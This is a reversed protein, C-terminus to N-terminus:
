ACITRLAGTITAPDGEMRAREGGRAAPTVIVRVGSAVLYRRRAAPDLTLWVDGVTQGTHREEVTTAESPLGQLRKAESILADSKTRYDDAIPDLERIEELLEAIEADYTNGPTVVQEVVQLNAFMGVHGDLEPPVDLDTLDAARLFSLHVLMEVLDLSIMNKCTSPAVDSHKCRYYENVKVTGDKLTRRSPHHHMFSGCVACIITGTLIATDEDNRNRRGPARTVARQLEDWEEPSMIGEHKHVVTKGKHTWRSRGKLAPNKLTNSVSKPTWVGGGRAAIGEGTLYQAISLLSDGKLARTIMERLYPVLDWNPELVKFYNGNEDNIRFGWPPRGVYGGNELITSRVDANRETITDLEIEALAELVPWMIKSGVDGKAVPWTLEPHRVMIQKHNRTAWMRLNMMDSSSRGLRDIKSGIVIDYSHILPGKEDLWPGLGKRNWPAVSGSVGRDESTAIVEHGNALAWARADQDDREIRSAEDSAKRSSLRAAILVRAM